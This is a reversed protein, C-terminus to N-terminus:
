SRDEPIKPWSFNPNESVNIAQIDQIYKMWSTLILKDENTIIGLMLQIQWSQTAVNAAAIRDAKESNVRKVLAAQQAVKDIVWKNGNWSDYATSPKLLTTDAPYEGLQSIVQATGDMTAYVTEGRHDDVQQWDGGFIRAKGQVADPPVTCTSNAPIGVGVSVYEESSGTFESTLADFSYVTLLGSEKALGYEDLSTYIIEPESPNVVPLKMADDTIIEQTTDTM